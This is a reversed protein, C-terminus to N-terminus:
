TLPDAGLERASGASLGGTAGALAQSKPAAALLNGIAALRPSATGLKALQGGIGVGTLAGTVGGAVDRSLRGATTEPAPLLADYLEQYTQSPTLLNQGVRELYSAEPNNQSLDKGSLWEAGKRVPYMAADMALTPLGTIGEPAGRAAGKLMDLTISPSSQEVIPPATPQEIASQAQFKEWPKASEAPKQFKEWPKM